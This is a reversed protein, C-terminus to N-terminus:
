SMEAAAQTAAVRFPQRGLHRHYHGWGGADPLCRQMLDDTGSLRDALSLIEAEPTQPERLGMWRPAHAVASLNHLLVQAHGHPLRIAWRAMAAAIWEIATVRHGLLRGRDSLGWSGDPKLRYEVAKGCDHLLASLVALDRHVYLREACLARVQEAVEVTHRLNGSTGNHHGHMSSPGTCFGWFRNEEWLVAHFLRQYSAPLEAILAAARQVLSRERVWGPPVTDFLSLTAVPRDLIALRAIRLCGDLSSAPGTWRPGVLLGAQLRADVTRATWRVKLQAREHFLHATLTAEGRNDVRTQLSTLRFIQPLMSLGLPHPLTSDSM